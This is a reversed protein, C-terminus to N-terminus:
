ILRFLGLIGAALVILTPSLRLRLVAICGVALGAVATAEALLPRGLVILSAGILGMSIPLITRNAARVWPNTSLREWHGAILVQLLIPPAVFAILAVAAGPVGAVRFGVPILYLIGPGPTAQGLAFATAFDDATMVGRVSVLERQMEALVTVGGGFSLAGMRFMVIALDFLNVERTGTNAQAV